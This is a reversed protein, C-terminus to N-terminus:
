KTEKQTETESTQAGNEAYALEMLEALREHFGGLYLYGVVGEFGSAIRYDIITSNKASTPKKVNRCRKYVALEEETLVSLIHKLAQAQSTANVFASAKRHLPGAKEGSLAALAARVYLTQVSDGVFSLVAPNMMNLERKDLTTPAIPLFRAADM